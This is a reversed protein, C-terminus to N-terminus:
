CGAVSRDTASWYWSRDLPRGRCSIWCRRGLVCCPPFARRRSSGASRWRGPGIMVAWGPPNPPHGGPISAASGPRFLGVDVPPPLRLMRHRAAPSLAAAIRDQTFASVATLHDCGDGIRRLLRRAGPVTAWWIEHGHTLGILRDAGATRLGPALLGLPAAAGFVVRTARYRHLLEAARAAVRPTPLLLSGDRVVPYGRGGDTQEAGAPGSAYVVVDNDLLGCLDSVFSEIGGIRPPFDNSIILTRAM